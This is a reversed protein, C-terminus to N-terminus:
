RKNLAEIPGHMVKFYHVYIWGLTMHFMMWPISGSHSYSMAGAIVVGTAWLMGLMSM